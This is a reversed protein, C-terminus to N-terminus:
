DTTEETEIDSTNEAAAETVKANDALYQVAKEMKMNFIINDMIGALNQKAQDLEVGMNTAIEGIRNDLEEDTVEFGKEEVIKELMFNTKVTSEADPWLDQRFEEENAQTMELYAELSLGQAKMREDMQKLMADVQLKIAADAVPIDCVKLAEKLVEDKMMEKSRYDAANVLNKKVDERLEGITEFESVEQAFADDLTRLEKAEIKNVTVKFVADKGALDTAHYSEPFTVKVDKIEGVKVGVLQEEFGPIFTGSGLELSYDQGAGGEFPVEDVFGEFDIVVTDGNDAPEDTKEVLQAYRSRMDEMRNDVDQETIEFKPVSIELGELNGLVVDPKVAVKVNFKFPQDAEIEGMDFEPQAIPDINLEKIAEEYANPVVAELADEFLIEKGFHAELLPRPVRGKRFGPISVQKVVKHYATELGQEFAEADVEIAIYAESNEIKELKADM